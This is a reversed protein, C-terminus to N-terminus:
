RYGYDFRKLNMDCPGTVKMRYNTWVTSNSFIM